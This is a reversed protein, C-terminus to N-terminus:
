PQCLMCDDRQIFPSWAPQKDSKSQLHVPQFIQAEVPQRPCDEMTTYFYIPAGTM